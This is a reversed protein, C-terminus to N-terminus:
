ASAPPKPQTWDSCNGCYGERIDNPNYSTLGCDPCTISPTQRRAQDQKAWLEQMERLWLGVGGPQEYPHNSM